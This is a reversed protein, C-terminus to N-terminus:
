VCHCPCESLTAECKFHDVEGTVRSPECRVKITERIDPSKCKKKREECKLPVCGTDCIRQAEDKILKGLEQEAKALDPIHPSKAVERTIKRPENPDKLDRVQIPFCSQCFCKCKGDPGRSAVCKCEPLKPPPFGRSVIRCPQKPYAPRKCKCSGEEEVAECEGLCGEAAALRLSPPLALDPTPATISDCGPLLLAAVGGAAMAVVERRTFRREDASRRLREGLLRARDLQDLALWVLHRNPPAGLERALRGTLEAVTTQGDCHRWIFATTRNLRHAAHRIEDYVVLEDGV